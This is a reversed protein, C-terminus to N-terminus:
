KYKKYIDTIYKNWSKLLSKSDNGTNGILQTNTTDLTTTSNYKKPVKVIKCLSTNINFERTEDEFELGEIFSIVGNEMVINTNNLYGSLLGLKIKQFLKTREEINLNYLESVEQIFISILIGQQKDNKIQKWNDIEINNMENNYKEDIAKKEKIDLPSIIGANENVFAKVFASAELITEPIIIENNKNKNKYSLIGNIYKFNRPLKGVAADEFFSYWFQDKEQDKINEFLQFEITRKTRASDRIKNHSRTIRPKCMTNEIGDKSSYWLKSGSFIVFGGDADGSM